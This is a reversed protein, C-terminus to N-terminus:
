GNIYRNWIYDNTTMYQYYEGANPSREIRKYTGPPMDFGNDIKNSVSVTADVMIWKKEDTLYVINCAHAGDKSYVIVTVAPVSIYSMIAQYTHAFGECVGSRNRVYNLISHSPVDVYSIKNKDGKSHDYSAKGMLTYVYYAADRCSSTMELEKVSSRIEEEIKKVYFQRFDGRACEADILPSVIGKQPSGGTTYQDSFFLLPYDAYIAHLTYLADDWSLNMKGYDVDGSKWYHKANVPDVFAPIADIPNIYYDKLQNRLIIYLDTLDKGNPREKIENFGYNTSCAEFMDLDNRVLIM